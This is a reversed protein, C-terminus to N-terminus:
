SKIWVVEFVVLAPGTADCRWCSVSGTSGLEVVHDHCIPGESGCRRCRVFAVAVAGCPVPYGLPVWVGLIRLGHVVAVACRPEFDLDELVAEDVTPAVDLASM